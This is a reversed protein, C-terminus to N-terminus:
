VGIVGKTHGCELRVTRTYAIRDTEEWQGGIASTEVREQVPFRHSELVKGIRRLTSCSGYGCYTTSRDLVAVPGPVPDHSGTDDDRDEHGDVLPLRAGGPSM